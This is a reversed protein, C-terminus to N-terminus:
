GKGGPVVRMWARQPRERDKPMNALVDSQALRVEANLLQTTLKDLQAMDQGLQVLRGRQYAAVVLGSAALVFGVFLIMLM